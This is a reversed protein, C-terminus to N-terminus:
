IKLKQGPYIVYKPGKIGNKNAITKWDVNYKKGIATLNDGSKVTYVIEKPTSNNEEMIKNVVAQVITPNYGAQALKDKREKGNGWKGNKIEDALNYLENVKNQVETPNYGAEALKRKREEKVGYVGNIVELAIEDISKSPEQPQPELQPKEKEQESSKAYKLWSEKDGYFFDKDVDANYGSIRGKSTYQWMAYFKWNNVVPQQQPQGNDIGYQAVWLGYDADAILKWDYSNIISTYSYFLPKVGTLEYVKDLFRKAYAVDGKNEAEWDLILIAENIYGRINDVFWQAEGEATNGMFGPRAYHYVGLLKGQNKALQYLRDCSNDVYGIGETAKCIVFDVDDGYGQLNWQHNSIDIGKLMLAGGKNRIISDKLM